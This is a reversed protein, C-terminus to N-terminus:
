LRHRQRGLLRHPVADRGPDPRVDGRGLVPPQDQCTPNPAYTLAVSRQSVPDTLATLRGSTDYSATAAAPRQDDAAGTVSDLGGDPRFVYGRGDGAHVSVTGDANVVVVDDVGPPPAYALGYATKAFSIAAGDPAYLTVSGDSVEARTYTAGGDTAQLSWGRPLVRPEASLWGAPVVFAQDPDAANRAWLEVAAGGDAQFYEVTIPRVGGGSLAGTQFDPLAPLVRTMWRDLVRVGDVYVRVGDDSRAGVQWQGAPLAVFGRWRVSYWEPPVGPSPSVSEVGTAGSVPGSWNFSVQADARVLAVPDSGDIVTDRDADVRYEGTLGGSAALSNFGLSVGIGGGVTPLHVEPVRVSVNGTVLNATVGAFQDTPSPSGAGLRRDVTIKRVASATWAHGDTAFVKWYYTVGDRLVGAPVPWTTAGGVPSTAVLGSEGDTGTSIKAVYSLADGDPDTAPNWRLTPSTSTIALSADAPSVLVPGPPRTNVNLVLTPPHFRKYTYVGSTNAGSFGFAGDQTGFFQWLGVLDTVDLTVGGTVDTTTFRRSPDGGCVAGTYDAGCAWWASVPYAATTGQAVGLEIVASLLQKGNIAGWYPFAAVSRWYSDGGGPGGQSNGVRIGDQASVLGDSKYSQHLSNGIVVTPDVVVPGSGTALERALWAGDVAVAGNGAVRGPRRPWQPAAEDGAIRGGADVVEPPVLGVRDALAGTVRVAEGAGSLGLGSVLFPFRSRGAGRVVIDEKVAGGSVTYALDVGPWVNRYVVTPGSVAPRVTTAADVEPAFRATGRDTVLEVGGTGGPGVPGFRVTWANARNRVWGPRSPDAVLENDVRAWSTAGPPRYHVPEAHLRVTRTGDGNRWVETVADRASTLERLPRPLSAASRRARAPDAWDPRCPWPAM